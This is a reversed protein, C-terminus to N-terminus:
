IDRLIWLWARLVEFGVIELSNLFYFVKSQPTNETANGVHITRSFLHISSAAQEIDSCVTPGIYSIGSGFYVNAWLALQNFAYRKQITMQSKTPGSSPEIIPQRSHPNGQYEETRLGRWSSAPITYKFVGGGTGGWDVPSSAPRAESDSHVPYRFPVGLAVALIQVWITWCTSM